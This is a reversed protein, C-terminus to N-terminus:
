DEFDHIEIFDDFNVMESNLALACLEPYNDASPMVIEGSKILEAAVSHRKEVEPLKQGIDPFLRCIDFREDYITCEKGDKLFPCEGCALLWDFVITLNRKMDHLVKNPRLNLKTGKLKALKELKGIEYSQISLGPTALGYPYIFGTGRFIAILISKEEDKTLSSAPKFRCCEGCRKCNAPIHNCRFRSM